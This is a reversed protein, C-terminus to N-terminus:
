LSNGCGACFKAEPPNAHGCTCNKAGQPAGAATAAMAASNTARSVEEDVQRLLEQQGAINEARQKIEAFFGELEELKIEGSTEHMDFVKQGLLQVLHIREGELSEITTKIKAREIVAKSNAGVTAVGKNVGVVIKDLLGAM